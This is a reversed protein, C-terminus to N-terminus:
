VEYTIESFVLKFVKLFQKGCSECEYNMFIIENNHKFEREDFDIFEIEKSDCYPCLHRHPSSLTM